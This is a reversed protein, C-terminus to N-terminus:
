SENYFDRHAVFRNNFLRDTLMLFDQKSLFREVLITCIHLWVLLLIPRVLVQLQFVHTYIIFLSFRSFLVFDIHSFVIVHFSLLVQLLLLIVCTYLFSSYISHLHCFISLLLFYWASIHHTFWHDVAYCIALCIVPV